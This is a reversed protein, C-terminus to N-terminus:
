PRDAVVVSWGNKDHSERVTAGSATLVAEVSAVEAPEFGSV